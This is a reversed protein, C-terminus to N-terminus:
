FTQIYHNEKVSLWKPVVFTTRLTDDDESGEFGAMTFYSRVGRIRNNLPIKRIPAYYGTPFTLLLRPISRWSKGRLLFGHSFFVLIFVIM